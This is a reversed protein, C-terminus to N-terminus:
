SELATRLEAMNTYGKAKPDAAIRRGEEIAAKTVHNPTDLTLPFPIGHARITAKLFLNIASTMTLGLENFVAEAQAKIEHSTRVNLNTTQM